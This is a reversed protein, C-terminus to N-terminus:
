EGLLIGAGRLDEFTADREPDGGENVAKLVALEEASVRDRRADLKRNRWFVVLNERAEPAQERVEADLWRVFDYAYPRLEVTSAIRLPGGEADSEADPAVLTQWEWWEFDALQAWWAPVDDRTALWEGLKAGNENIEVAHMPHDAFYAEVLSSWREGAVERLVQHVGGTATDRHAACFRAYIELRHSDKLPAGNWLERQVVETTSRGELYPGVVEFVRNLKM